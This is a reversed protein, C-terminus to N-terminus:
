NDKFQLLLATTIRSPTVDPHLLQTGEGVALRATIVSLRDDVNKQIETLRIM